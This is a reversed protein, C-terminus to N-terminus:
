AGGLINRSSMWLTFCCNWTLHLCKWVSNNPTNYFKHRALTHSAQRGKSGGVEAVAAQDADAVDNGILQVPSRCLLCWSWVLWWWTLALIVCNLVTSFHPCFVVWSHPCRSVAYFSFNCEKRHKELFHWYRVPEHPCVVSHGLETVWSNDTCERIINNCERTDYINMRTERGANIWFYVYLIYISQAKFEFSTFKSVSCTVNLLLQFQLNLLECIM